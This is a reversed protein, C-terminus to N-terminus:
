YVGFQEKSVLEPKYLGEKNKSHQGTTSWQALRAHDTGMDSATIRCGLGAFYSPLPEEGSHIFIDFCFMRLGYM